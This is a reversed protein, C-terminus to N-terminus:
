RNICYGAPGYIELTKGFTQPSPLYMALLLCVLLYSVFYTISKHSAIGWSFGFYSQFEENIDVYHYGSKLDFTFVFDGQKILTPILSLGEYKFKYQVLCQNVHLYRLDIVLRLKGKANSVVQLPSCVIPTSMSQLVCHSHVLDSISEEM